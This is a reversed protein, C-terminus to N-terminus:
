ADDNPLYDHPVLPPTPIDEEGKDAEGIARVRASRRPEMPLQVTVTADDACVVAMAADDGATADDSRHPLSCCFDTHRPSKKGFYCCLFCERRPHRTRAMRRM